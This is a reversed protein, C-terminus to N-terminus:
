IFAFLLFILAFNFNTREGIARRNRKRNNDDNNTGNDSNTNERIGDYRICQYAVSYVYADDDCATCLESYGSEQCQKNFACIGDKLEYYEGCKTCATQDNNYTECGEIFNEIICKGDVVKTGAACDICINGEARLCYDINIKECHRESNLQFRSYCQMCNKNSDYTLCYDKVCNGDSDFNYYSACQICKGEEENDFHECNPVNICKSRDNSKSYNEECLFCQNSVGILCNSVTSQDLRYCTKKTQLCHFDQYSFSVLILFLFYKINLM